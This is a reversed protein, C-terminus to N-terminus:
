RFSELFNMIAKLVDPNSNGSVIGLGHGVGEILAYSVEPIVSLAYEVDEETMSSGTGVSDSQILLVPCQIEKLLDELIYGDHLEGPNDFSRMVEIDLQSLTLASLLANPSVKEEGMRSAMEKVSLGSNLLELHNERIVKFWDRNIWDIASQITVCPEALILARLKDGLQAAVGISIIAGFSHALLVPSDELHEIFAVLDSAYEILKYSNARGSTGHGRHNIAHVHWRPTLPALMSLIYNQWRQTGGPAFILPPGNDPGEAYNLEVEGTDFRKEVLM